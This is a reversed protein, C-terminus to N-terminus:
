PQATSAEGLPLQIEYSALLNQLYAENAAKRQRQKYDLIVKERVQAFGLTKAPQRETLQVAHWGFASRLPGQWTDQESLKTLQVAFARGFLDGVERASRQVYQRQLM